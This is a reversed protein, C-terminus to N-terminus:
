KGLNTLQRFTNDITRSPVSQLKNKHLCLPNLHCNEEGKNLASINRIKRRCLTLNRQVMRSSQVQHDNSTVQDFSRLLLRSTTFRKSLEPLKRDGLIIIARGGSRLWYSELKARHLYLVHQHPPSLSRM